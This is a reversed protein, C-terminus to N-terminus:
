VLEKARLFETLSEAMITQQEATPHDRWGGTMGSPIECPYYGMAEGGLDAMVENVVNKCGATMGGYIWVIKATPNYEKTLAIMDKIGNYFEDHNESNVGWHLKSDFEDGMKQVWWGGLDNTGLYIVVVDAARDESLATGNGRWHNELAYTDLWANGAGVKGGSSWKFGIGGRARIRYDVGLARATKFAYSDTGEATEVYEGSDNKRTGVGATISDGVFEVLTNDGAPPTVSGYLTVDILDAAGVHAASQRVLDIVREKATKGFDYEITYEKFSNEIYVPTLNEALLEGDAYLSFRLNDANEPIYMRFSIKDYIEGTVTLTSATWDFSVGKDTKETFQNLKVSNKYSDDNFSVVKKDAELQLNYQINAVSFETQESYRVTGDSLKAYSRVAVADDFLGVPIDKLFASHTVVGTLEDFAWVSNMNQATIKVAGTPLNELIMEGRVSDASGILFGREAVDLFFGNNYVKGDSHTTYKSYFRIAQKGDTMESDKLVSATLGGLNIAKPCHTYATQGEDPTNFRVYAGGVSKIVPKEPTAKEALMDVGYIYAKTGIPLSVEQSDGLADYAEQAISSTGIEGSGTKRDVILWVQNYKIKKKLLSVGDAYTAAVLYCNNDESWELAVVKPNTFGYNSQQEGEYIEPVFLTVNDYQWDPKDTRKMLYTLGIKLELDEVTSSACHSYAIKTEDPTYFRVSAGNVPTNVTGGAANYSLMDVGYVYAKTGVPVSVTKDEGLAAYASQAATNSGLTGNSDKAKDVILWIQNYQIKYSELNVGDDYTAAVKYCKDMNDWELVVVKAHTFGYTSAQEGITIEPVYLTVGNYNWDPKDTRKILWDVGVTLEEEAFATIGGFASFILMLSLVIGLVKKM